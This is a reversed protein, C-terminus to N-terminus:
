LSHMPRRVRAQPARNIAATDLDLGTVRLVDNRLSANIIHHDQYSM